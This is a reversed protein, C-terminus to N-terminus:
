SQVFRVAYDLAKLFSGAEAVGAGAIDFATGHDVSRGIIPLGFAINVGGEFDLLKLPVHGQDHYMWVIADFRKKRAALYFL